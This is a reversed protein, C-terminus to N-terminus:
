ICTKCNILKKIDEQAKFFLEQAECVNDFRINAEAAKIYLDIKQIKKLIESDVDKGCFNLKMFLSDLELRITDTKLYSLSYNFKDPSGKVTINYLGDPLDVEDDKFCDTCCLGLNSSNFYNISKKDFYHVVPESFGPLLIEIISPQDYIHAWESLDFVVLNKPDNNKLIQFKININKVSM